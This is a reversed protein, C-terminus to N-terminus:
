NAQPNASLLVAALKMVTRFEAFSLAGDLNVDAARLVEEVEARSAVAAGGGGGGGGGSGGGAAAAANGQQQEKKAAAAMASELERITLRGDHNRDWRDFSERWRREDAELLLAVIM